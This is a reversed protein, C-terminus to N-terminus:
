VVLSLVARALKPDFNRPHVKAGFPECVTGYLRWFLAVALAERSRIM